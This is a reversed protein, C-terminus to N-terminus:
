DTVPPAVATTKLYQQIVKTAIGFASLLLAITVLPWDAVFRRIM